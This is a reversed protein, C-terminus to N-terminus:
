RVLLVILAAALALLALGLAALALRRRGGRDSAAPEPLAAHLAAAVEQADVFRESPDRALCRRAVAALLPPVDPRCSTLPPPEGRLVAEMVERASGQFPPRGALMEHLVVGIAWVDSAPGPRGDKFLEPAAYTAEGLAPGGAFAHRTGTPGIAKPVGFGTLKVARAEGELRVDRPTLDGHVLRRAHARALGRALDRAVRAAEVVPLPGEQDLVQRLTPGRLRELAVWPRPADGVGLVRVLRPDDLTTRARADLLFGRGAWTVAMAPSLVLVVCEGHQAHTAAFLEGTPRQALRKGLAYGGVLAGEEVVAPAADDRPRPVPLVGPFPATLLPGPPAESPRRGPMVATPEDPSAVRGPPPGDVTPADEPAPLPLRDRFARTPVQEPHPAETM